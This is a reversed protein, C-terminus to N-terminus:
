TKPTDLFDDWFGLNDLNQGINDEILKITKWKINLYTIWKSNIKTFAVLDTDQDIKKKKQIHSDM